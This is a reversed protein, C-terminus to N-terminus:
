GERCVVCAASPVYRYILLTEPFCFRSGSKGCVVFRYCVAKLVDTCLYSFDLYILSLKNFLILVVTAFPSIAEEKAM